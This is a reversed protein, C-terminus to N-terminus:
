LIHLSIAIFPPVIYAIFSGKIFYLICSLLILIFLLVAEYFHTIGEEKMCIDIPSLAHGDDGFDVVNWVGGSYHLCASATKENQRARFKNKTGVVESAQPYYHLIIDLGDRTANYLDTVQIM